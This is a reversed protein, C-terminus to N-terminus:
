KDRRVVGCSLCKLGGKVGVHLTDKGCVACWIFAVFTRLM